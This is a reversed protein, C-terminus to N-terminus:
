EVVVMFGAHNGTGDKTWTFTVDGTSADQVVGAVSGAGSIVDNYLRAAPGSTYILGEPGSFASGAGWQFHIVTNEAQTAAVTLSTAFNGKATAGVSGSVSHFIAYGIGFTGDSTIEVTGASIDASQLVYSGVAGRRESGFNATDHITAANGNVTITTPLGTSGYFIILKEGANFASVDLASITNGGGIQRTVFTAVDGGAAPVNNTVSLGSFNALPNAKTDELDGGAYALTLTDGNQPLTGTLTSTWTDTGAGSFAGLTPNTRAANALTFPTATTSGFVAETWTITLTDGDVNVSAASATPATFDLGSVTVVQVTSAGGNNDEVIALAIRNAANSDSTLGTILFSGSAFDWSGASTFELTGTGGSGAVLQAVSVTVPDEGTAAYITLTDAGAYSGTITLTDPEGSGGAAFVADTIVPDVAVVEARVAGSALTFVAEQGGGEAITVRVQFLYTQGATAPPITVTAGAQWDTTVTGGVTLRYARATPTVAAGGWTYAGAEDSTLDTGEQESGTVTPPTSQALSFAPLTVTEAVAQVAGGSNTYTVAGDFVAGSDTDTITYPNAVPAGDKLLAVTFAGGVAGTWTGQSLSVADGVSPGVTIIPLVTNVAPAYTVFLGASAVTEAGITGEARITTEDDAATLTYTEGTAGSISTGNRTWQVADYTLFDAVTLTEGVRPTGTVTVTFPATVGRSLVVGRAGIRANIGRSLFM